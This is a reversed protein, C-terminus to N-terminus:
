CPEMPSCNYGTLLAELMPVIERFSYRLTPEANWCGQLLGVFAPPWQPHMPPRYGDRVVCDMFDSKTARRFPVRSTALQWLLIGFSYVDVKETYPKGLAVEPAMYRLTGTCGTMQYAQSVDQRQKVSISLGFDFLKVVGDSLGINDPKLDRHIITVGPVCDHHLYNLASALGLGRQLAEQFSIQTNSLMGLTGQNLYELVVFRRPEHGSGLFRVINPHDSNELISRELEFEKIVVPDLCLTKKIMKIVVYKSDVKAKYLVANTGEAFPSIDKFDSIRLTNCPPTYMKMMTYQDLNILFDKPIQQSSCSSIVSEPATSVTSISWSRPRPSADDTTNKDVQAQEMPKQLLTLM